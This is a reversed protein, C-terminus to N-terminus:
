NNTCNILLSDIKNIYESKYYYIGRCHEGNIKWFEKPETANEFIQEGMSMLCIQDEYSHVILKQMNEIKAISKFSSYPEAVILKALPKILKPVFRMAINKHSSFAGEIVLIDIEDQNRKAIEVALNGGLSHGMLILKVNESLTDKLLFDLFLESDKILNKHTPKGQSKGYGEYDFLLVKYGNEAFPVVRNIWTSVNGGNGHLFLINAKPTSSSPNLIIGHLVKNKKNKIYVEEYSFKEIDAYPSNTFYFFRNFSCSSFVFCVLIVLFWKKM